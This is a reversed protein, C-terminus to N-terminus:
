YDIRAANARWEDFPDVPTGASPGAQAVPMLAGDNGPAFYEYFLADDFGADAADHRDAAFYVRGIRAWLSSALCMPCPECSSYLTAGSLDFSGVGQCANRIATVEAHATPDLNATVRNVGAFQRGDAMVVIAGFPGGSSRVNEVALAVAQALYDGTGQSSDM